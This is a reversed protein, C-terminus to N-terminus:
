TFLDYCVERNYAFTLAGSLKALCYAGKTENNQDCAIIPSRLDLCHKCAASVEGSQAPTLFLLIFTLLSEELAENNRFSVPISGVKTRLILIIHPSRYPVAMENRYKYM